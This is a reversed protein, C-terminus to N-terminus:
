AFILRYYLYTVHVKQTDEEIFACLLEPTREKIIMDDFWNMVTQGYVTTVELNPIVMESYTRLNKFESDVQKLYGTFLLFSWIDEKNVNIDSYVTNENVPAKISKGAM